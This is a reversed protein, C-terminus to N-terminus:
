PSSNAPAVRMVQGEEVKLSKGAELTGKGYPAPEAQSSMFLVYAGVCLAVLIALVMAALSANMLM